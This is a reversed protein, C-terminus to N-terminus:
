AEGREDRAIIVNYSHHGAFDLVKGVTGVRLVAAVISCFTSAFNKCDYYKRRYQLHDTGIYPLCAEILDWDGTQLTTDELIPNM